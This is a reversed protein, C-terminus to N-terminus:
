AKDLAALTLLWREERELDEVSEYGLQLVPVGSLLGRAGANSREGAELLLKLVARFNGAADLGMRDGLCSFDFDHADVRWRRLPAGALVDAFYLLESSEVRKEVKKAGGAGFVSPPLGTAMTLGLGLARKGASPGEDVVVTRASRQTFAAAAVLRVPRPLGLSALPEAPPLDEILSAPLALAPIGASTLAGVQLRASAESADLDVLGRCRRLAPALDVAPRGLAPALAKSLAAASPLEGTLVVAYRLEAM